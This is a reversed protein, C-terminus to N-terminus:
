QLFLVYLVSYFWKRWKEKEEWSNFDLDSPSTPCTADHLVATKGCELPAWSFFAGLTLADCNFM